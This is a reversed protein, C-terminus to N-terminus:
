EMRESFTNNPVTIYFKSLDKSVKLTHVQHSKGFHNYALVRLGLWFFLVSGAIRWNTWENIFGDLGVALFPTFILVKTTIPVGKPNDITFLVNRDEKLTRMPIYVQEKDNSFRFFTNNNIISAVKGWGRLMGIMINSLLIIILYIQSQM